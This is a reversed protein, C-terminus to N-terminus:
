GEMVGHKVIKHRWEMNRRARSVSHHYIFAKYIHRHQTITVCMYRFMDLEADQRYAHIHTSHLTVHMTKRLGGGCM